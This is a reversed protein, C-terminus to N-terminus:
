EGFLGNRESGGYEAWEIRNEFNAQKSSSVLKLPFSNPRKERIPSLRQNWVIM